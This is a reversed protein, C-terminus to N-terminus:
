LSFFVRHLILSNSARPYDALWLRITQRCRASCGSSLFTFDVGGIWGCIEWVASHISVLNPSSTFCGQSINHGLVQTKLGVLDGPISNCGLEVLFVLTGGSIRLDLALDPTQPTFILCLSACPM